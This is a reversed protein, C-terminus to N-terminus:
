WSQWKYVVGEMQQKM